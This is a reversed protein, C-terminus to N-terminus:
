RRRGGILFGIVGALLIPGVVFVVFLGFIGYYWAVWAVIATFLDM